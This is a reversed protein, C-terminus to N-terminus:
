RQTVFFRRSGYATMHIIEPTAAGPVSLRSTGSLMRDIAEIFNQLASLTASVTGNGSSATTPISAITATVANYIADNVSTVATPGPVISLEGEGRFKLIPKMTYINGTFQTNCTQGLGGNDVLTSAASVSTTGSASSSSSSATVSIESSGNTIAEIKKRGMDAMGSCNGYYSIGKYYIVSRDINTSIKLSAATSSGSASSSANPLLSVNNGFQAFGSGNQFRMAYQYIGQDDLSSGYDGGDFPGGVIAHSSLPLAFVASFFIAIKRIM